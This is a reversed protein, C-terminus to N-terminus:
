STKLNSKKRGAKKVRHKDGDMRRGDHSLNISIRPNSGQKYEDFLAFRCSMIMLCKVDKRMKMNMRMNDKKEIMTSLRMATGDEGVMMVMKEGAVPLGSQVGVKIILHIKIGSMYGITRINMMINFGDIDKTLVDPDIQLLYNFEKFARCLPTKFDFVNTEIRFIKVVEGGDDSYFSEKNTLEVEDDGRAWFVWLAKMTYHDM